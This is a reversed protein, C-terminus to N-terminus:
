GGFSVTPELIQHPEVRVKREKVGFGEHWVKLLYEGPPVDALKLTGKRNTVGAYPHNFVFVYGSMWPHTNSRVRIYGTYRSLRHWRKILKRIAIGKMPLAINYITAGEELPRDSVDKQYALGMKMQVTHLIEDSSYFVFSGGVFGVSVRPRIRCKDIAVNVTSIVTDNGKEIGDLWVVANKVRSKDVLYVDAEQTSGCYDLDESIRIIENEPVAGQHTVTVKITAGDRVKIVDYSAATVPLTLLLLTSVISLRVFLRKSIAAPFKPM